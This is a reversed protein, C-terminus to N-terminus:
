RLSGSKEPISDTISGPSSAASGDPTSAPRGTPTCPARAPCRGCLATAAAIGQPTEDDFVEVHRTCVAGPLLPTNRALATLLEGVALGNM